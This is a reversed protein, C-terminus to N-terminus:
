NFTIPEKSIRLETLEIQVVSKFCKLKMRMMSSSIKSYFWQKSIWFRNWSFGEMKLVPFNKRSMMGNQDPKLLNLDLKLGM